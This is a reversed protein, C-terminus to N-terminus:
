PIEVTLFDIIAELNDFMKIGKRQCVIDVNGKRWFGNECCVLLKQSDAFLGLELLSIPSKSNKELFLVIYTAQELGDLEWEVQERFPENDISQLWDNNWAKRRPNLIVIEKSECFPTINEIFMQQWDASNGMDITGALFISISSPPIPNPPYIIRM